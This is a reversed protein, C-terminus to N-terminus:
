QGIRRIRLVGEGLFDPQLRAIRLCEEIPGHAQEIRIRRLLVLVQGHVPLQVVGTYQAINVAEGLEGRRVVPLDGAVAIHIQVQSRGELETGTDTYRMISEAEIM